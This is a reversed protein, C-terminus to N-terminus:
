LGPHYKEQMHNKQIIPRSETHANTLGGNDSVAETFGYVPNWSRDNM